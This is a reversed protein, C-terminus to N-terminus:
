RSTSGALLLAPRPDHTVPLFIKARSTEWRERYTAQVAAISDGARLRFSADVTAVFDNTVVSAGAPLPVTGVQSVRQRSYSANGDVQPFQLSRTIGLQARAQDVRTVAIRLDKNAEIATRILGRLEEDQFLDWWALDALSTADETPTVDRWTGPTPVTPRRYDPGLTCGVLVLCLVASAALRRM